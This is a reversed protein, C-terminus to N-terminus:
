VGLAPKALLPPKFGRRGALKSLAARAPRVPAQPLAAPTQQLGKAEEAEEAEAQGASADAAARQAVASSALGVTGPDAAPGTRGGAGAVKAECGVRVEPTATITTTTTAPLHPVPKRRPATFSVARGSGVLLGQGSPLAPQGLQNLNSCQAHLHEEAAACGLTGQLVASALAGHVPAGDQPLASLAAPRASPPSAAAPRRRLMPVSGQQVGPQLAQATAPGSQHPPGGSGGPWARIDGQDSVAGTSAGAAAAAAAAAAAGSAAAAIALDTVGAAKAEVPNAAGPMSSAASWGGEKKARKLPQQLMARPSPSALEAAAAAGALGRHVGSQM